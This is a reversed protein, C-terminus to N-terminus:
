KNSLDAGAVNVGISFVRSDYALAVRTAAKQDWLIHTTLLSIEQYADDGVRLLCAVTVSGEVRKEGINFMILFKDLFREIHGFIM